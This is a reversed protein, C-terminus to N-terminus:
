KYCTVAHAAVSIKELFLVTQDNKSFVGQAGVGQIELSTFIQPQASLKFEPSV